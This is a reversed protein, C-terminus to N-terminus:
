QYPTTSLYNRQSTPPTSSFDRVSAVAATSSTKPQNFPGAVIAYIFLMSIPIILLVAAVLGVAFGKGEEKELIQEWNMDFNNGQRKAWSTNAFVKSLFHAHPKKLVLPM